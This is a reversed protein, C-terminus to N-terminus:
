LLKRNYHTLGGRNSSKLRVQGFRQNVVVNNLDLVWFFMIATHSINVLERIFETDASLAASKVYFTNFFFAYNPLM